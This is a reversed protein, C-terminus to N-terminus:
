SLVYRVVNDSIHQLGTRRCGTAHITLSQDHIARSLSSVGWGPPNQTTPNNQGFAASKPYVSFHAPKAVQGSSAITAKASVVRLLIRTWVGSRVM